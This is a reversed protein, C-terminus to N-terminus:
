RLEEDAFRTKGKDLAKIIANNSKNMNSENHKRRFELERIEEENDIKRMYQKYEQRTNYINNQMDHLLKVRGSKSFHITIEDGDIEKLIMQVSNNDTDLCIKEFDVYLDKKM